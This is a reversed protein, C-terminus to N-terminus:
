WRQPGKGEEVWTALPSVSQLPGWGALHRQRDGDGTHGVTGPSGQAALPLEWPPPWRRPRPGHPLVVLGSDQGAVPGSQVPRERASRVDVGGTVAPGAPPLQPSELGLCGLGLGRNSPRPAPPSPGESLSVARVWAAGGARVQGDGPRFAPQPSGSRPDTGSGVQGRVAERM